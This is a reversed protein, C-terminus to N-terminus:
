IVVKLPNVPTCNFDKGNKNYYITLKKIIHKNYYKLKKYYQKTVDRDSLIIVEPQFIQEYFVISKILALFNASLATAYLRVKEKINISDFLNETFIDFVGEALVIQNSKPSHGKLKYYDLFNTEQLKLKYFSMHQTHDINRFIITSENETLFGVFNSQLYDLIRFLSNDVEIKNMEIFSKIDYILGKVNSNNIGAFKFRKKIYFDKDIFQSKNLFPLSLKLQKKEKDEFVQKKKSLEKLKSKDIFSGSIDHGEIKTLFKKITGTEECSAHFCHFIPLDLSIYMHYHDKNKGYECFPCMCIINKSTIKINDSLKDKLYEIFSDQYIGIM